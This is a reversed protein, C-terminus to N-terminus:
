GEIRSATEGGHSLPPLPGDIEIPVREISGDPHKAYRGLWRWAYPSAGIVQTQDTSLVACEGKSLGTITFRVQKGTTADWIQAMGSRSATLIHTGDPSWAM